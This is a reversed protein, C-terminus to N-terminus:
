AKNELLNKIDDKNIVISGESPPANDLFIKWLIVSDRITDIDTPVNFILSETNTIQVTNQPFLVSSKSKQVDFIFRYNREKDDQIYPSNIKITLLFDNITIDGNNYIGLKINIVHINKIKITPCERNERKAEEEIKERNKRREDFTFIKISDIKTTAQPQQNFLMRLRIEHDQLPKCEFESRGYYKFDKAQYATKGKPVLINFLICGSEDLLRYVRLGLLYPKINSELTQQLWEPTITDNDIGLIKSAIRLKGEKIEEIGILINGGETNAFASIQRTLDEISKEKNEFIKRSKFELRLSEQQGIALKWNELKSYNEM